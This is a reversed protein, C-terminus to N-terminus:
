RGRDSSSKPCHCSRESLHRAKQLEQAEGAENVVSSAFDYFSQKRLYELVEKKNPTGELAEEILKQGKVTKWLDLVKNPRQGTTFAKNLDTIIGSKIEAVPAFKGHPAKHSIISRAADQAPKDLFPAVERYARRAKEFPLDRLHQLIERQVANFQAPNVIKKLNELVTPELLSSAVREAKQQGRIGTIVENGYKKATDAYLGEAQIFKKSLDPNASELAEKIEKKLSNVVPKLQNKISPGVIDYDVIKNLRQALEMTQSLSVEEQVAFPTLKIPNGSADRVLLKGGRVEAIYYGMDQLNDNLTNIVKQYGEPRTKLSNIHDLISNALKITSNPKHKIDKAATKVEQYLPQYQKEAEKFNKEIDAKINEGLVKETEAREGVSEVLEDARTREIQQMAGQADIEGPQYPTALAESNADIREFQVPEIKKTALDVKPETPLAEPAAKLTEIGVREAGEPPAEKSLRIEKGRAEEIPKELESLVKATVRDTASIPIGEKKMDTLLTNIVEWSPKQTRKAKDVLWTAFKGGLGAGKLVADLAAWEAGHALVDEAEPMKGQFADTLAKETAGTAGWGMMDALSTLAKTAVPSKEALKILPGSFVKNLVGITPLSAGLKYAEKIEPYEEGVNLGPVLESAGLTLGSLAAKGMTPTAQPEVAKSMRSQMSLAQGFKEWWPAEGGPLAEASPEYIPQVPQKYKKQETEPRFAFLPDNNPADPKENAHQPRFMALPDQETATM